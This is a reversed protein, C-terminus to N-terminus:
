LPRLEEFFQQPKSPFIKSTQKQVFLIVRKVGVEGITEVQLQLVTLEISIAGAVLRKGVYEGTSIHHFYGGEPFIPWFDDM